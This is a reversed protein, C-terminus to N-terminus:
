KREKEDKEKKTTKPPITPRVSLYYVAFHETGGRDKLWAPPNQLRIKLSTRKEIQFSYKTEEQGLSSHHFTFTGQFKVTFVKCKPTTVLLSTSSMQQAETQPRLVVTLSYYFDQKINGDEDEYEDLNETVKMELGPYEHDSIVTFKVNDDDKKAVPIVFCEGLGWKELRKKREKDMKKKRKKIKKGCSFFFLSPFINTHTHCSM